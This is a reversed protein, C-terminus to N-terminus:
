LKLLFRKRRLIAALWTVAVAFLLSRILGVLFDAGLRSYLDPIPLFTPLLTFLAYLVPALIYALLANQGSLRLMGSWGTSRRVDVLWYVVAWIWITIASSWLCWAPTAAIKNITFMPDVERATHLLFGAAAMGAGYLIAWRVRMRASPYPSGPLLITGALVGSVVIGAHSGLMSGIGVWTTIWTLGSFAGAADAIYVCYLLVTAGLLGTTQNRLLLYATCAVLYAWGILGLIGWWYPRMEIFGPVGTGRYLLVLVCLLLGGGVRLGIQKWREALYGPPPAGWVLIVGVYMLLTWLAPPFLGADSIVGSNVMFVGIVLLSLVRGLVHRLIANTSEGREFRRGIAFPISMGVIFLFAPFIVDVFTMGDADPPDIHKMWAPVGAVGALDNVFIMLLITLGRLVDISDIRASGTERDPLDARPRLEPRSELTAATPSM